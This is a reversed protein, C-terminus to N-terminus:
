VKAHRVEIYVTYDFKELFTKPATVRIHWYRKFKPINIVEEIVSKYLSPVRLQVNKHEGRRIPKIAEKFFKILNAKLTLYEIDVIDEAEDEPNETMKKILIKVTDFFGLEQIPTNKDVDIFEFIKKM